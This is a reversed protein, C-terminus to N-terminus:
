PLQTWTSGVRVAIYIADGSRLTTITNLFDPGDPSWFRWTQQYPDYQYAHSLHGVNGLAQTVSRDPGQWSVLNTGRYLRLTVQQPESPPAPLWRTDPLVRAWVAQGPQVSRVAVDASAPDAPDFRYYVNGVAHHVAIESLPAELSAFLGAVSTRRSVGVTRWGGIPADAPLTWTPESEVAPEEDTAGPTTSGPATWNPGNTSTFQVDAHLNYEDQWLLDRGELAYTGTFPITRGLYGGGRTNHIAYHIHAVGGNVDYGVPFVRGVQDGITVTLSRRIHEDPDIHVLLHAYGNADVITLGNFDFWTIVGDVPALVPTWDTPADTRVFDLAHPDGGDHDGHTGTNYGAVVSWTTGAPAPFPVGGEASVGGPLM